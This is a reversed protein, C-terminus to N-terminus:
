NDKARFTNRKEIYTNGDDRKEQFAFCFALFYRLLGIYHEQPFVPLDAEEETQSIEQGLVLWNCELAITIRQTHFPCRKSQRWWVALAMSCMRVM